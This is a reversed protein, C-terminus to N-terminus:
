TIKSRRAKMAHSLRATIPVRTTETNKTRRPPNLSEYAREDIPRYIYADRASDAYVIFLKSFPMLLLNRGILHGEVPKHNGRATM